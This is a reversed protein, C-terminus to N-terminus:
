WREQCVETTFALTWKRLGIEIAAKRPVMEAASISTRPEFEFAAVAGFALKAKNRRQTARRM